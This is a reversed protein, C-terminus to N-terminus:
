KGQGKTDPALHTRGVHRIEADAMAKVRTNAYTVRVGLLRSVASVPGSRLSGGVKEEYGCHLCKFKGLRGCLSNYEQILANREESTM